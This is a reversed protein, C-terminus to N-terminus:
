QIPQRRFKYLVEFGIRGVPVEADFEQAGFERLHADYRHRFTDVGPMVDAGEIFYRGQQFLGFLRKDDDHFLFFAFKPFGEQRSFKEQIGDSGTLRM